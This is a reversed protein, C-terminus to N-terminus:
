AQAPAAAVPRVAGSLLGVVVALLPLAALAAPLTLLEALAGILPPGVVFGLYGTTTVAALSPASRTGPITAAARFVAPIITALGAGLCAFGALAAAPRGALLAGALGAAALAAGRRVLAVSGVRATLADGVV